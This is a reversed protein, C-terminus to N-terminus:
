SRYHGRRDSAAGQRPEPPARRARCPGQGRAALSRALGLTSAEHKGSGSRRAAVALSAASAGSRRTPRLTEMELEFKDAEPRLRESFRGFEARWYRALQFRLKADRGSRQRRRAGDRRYHVEACRCRRSLHRCREVIISTPGKGTEVAQGRILKCRPGFPVM